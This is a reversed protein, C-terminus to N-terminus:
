PKHHSLFDYIAVKQHNYLNQKVYAHSVTKFSRAPIRYNTFYMKARSRPVHIKPYFM